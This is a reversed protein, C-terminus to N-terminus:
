YLDSSNENSLVDVDIADGAAVYGIMDMNIMGLINEGETSANQAYAESGYLGLEEGSFLVFKITRKFSMSSMVRAAEMVSASGSGNDDAGPAGNAYVDYHGGTLYIEEPAVQGYKIVVVNPIWGSNYNQFYVSDYGLREFYSKLYESSNIATSNTTYREMAQLTSIFHELSDQSVESVLQEIVINDKTKYYPILQKNNKSSVIARNFIRSIKFKHFEPFTNLVKNKSEFIIRNEDKYLLNGHKSIESVSYSRLPYMVFYFSSSNWDAINNENQESIALAIDNDMYIINSYKEFIINESIYESKKCLILKSAYISQQIILLLFAVIFIKITKM